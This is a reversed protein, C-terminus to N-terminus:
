DAPRTRGGSRQKFSHEIPRQLSFQSPRRREGEYELTAISSDSVGAREHLCPFNACTPGVISVM